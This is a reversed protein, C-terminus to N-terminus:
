FFKPFPSLFVFIKKIIEFSYRPNNYVTMLKKPFGYSDTFDKLVDQYLSYDLEDFDVDDAKAPVASICASAGLILASLVALMKRTKMM